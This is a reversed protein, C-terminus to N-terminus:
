VDPIIVAEDFAATVGDAAAKAAVEAKRQKMLDLSFRRLMAQYIDVAEGNTMSVKGSAELETNIADVEKGTKAAVVEAGLLRPGIAEVMDKMDPVYAEPITVPVVADPM